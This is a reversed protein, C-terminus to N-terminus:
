AIRWVRVEDGERRRTFKVGLAKGYRDIASNLSYYSAIPFSICENVGLTKLAAFSNKRYPGPNTNKDTM